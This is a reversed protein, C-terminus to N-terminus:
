KTSAPEESTSGWSTRVRLVPPEEVPKASPELAARGTFRLHKLLAEHHGIWAETWAQSSAYPFGRLETVAHRVTSESCRLEGGGRRTANWLIPLQEFAMRPTGGMLGVLAHMLERWSSSMALRAADRGVERTAAAGHLRSVCEYVAVAHGEDYWANPEAADLIRRSSVALAEYVSELHGRRELAARLNPFFNGRIQAM